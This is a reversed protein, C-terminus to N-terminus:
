IRELNEKRMMSSLLKANPAPQAFAPADGIVALRPLARIVNVTEGSGGSM